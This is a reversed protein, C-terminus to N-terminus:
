KRPALIDDLRAPTAPDRELRPYRLGGHYDISVTRYHKGDKILLQIPATGTKAAGITDKLDDPDFAVGDVAVITAGPEVGAKFAPGNWQVGGVNGDHGVSLGISYTFDDTKRRMSASRAYATETDTYVLRYGGRALGDLPAGPGHGDLRTRLFSTWDYPAVSNLTAVVDEFRYPDTVFSGNHM